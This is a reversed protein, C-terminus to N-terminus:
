REAAAKYAQMLRWELVGAIGFLAIVILCGIIGTVALWM